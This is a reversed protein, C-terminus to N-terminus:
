RIEYTVSVRVVIESEGVPLEPSELVASEIYADAGGLGYAKTDYYPGTQEWFGTVRSLNVKLDKALTKAKSRADEIAMKRAEAKLAEPDDVTFSPGYLNSVGADGLASLVEGVVATDRVKVEVTQSAIYGTVRQEYEPCYASYCPVARSYKPTVNYSTTKIDEEEVGLERVVALAVNVKKAATDQANSATQAEERVSFTVTAIDPIATVRGTGEVSVVNGMPPRPEFLGKFTDIALLAVFISAVLLLLAGLKEVRASEFLKSTNGEM